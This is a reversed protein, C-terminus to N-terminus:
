EAAVTKRSARDRPAIQGRPIELDQRSYYKYQGDEVRSLFVQGLDDLCASLPIPGTVGQFTTPRHAIVDRIKARNLGAYQIAWIIMNMGDYAHAAYTDPEIGYRSRFAARFEQLKPDHRTPDWPYTCLVGEANSGAIELFEDSVCRDCCFYPQTMGMERMQNLIIAGEVADGWHVVADLNADRLREIQVTFDDGGVPYAMELIIPTKLRRAGDRIERVGFRGYRNSARIIGVRKYEMKRYLYDTLLYGMQRDDGICRAVWPINTEIFTPDTDGTNMMVLEAKLAVRIAIHSNAGDITGLIAWVHDKYALKVIENGSAGWLGNDNSIVLEFPIGRKTYGGRANAQEIALQCGRLMAIGLSEEHSKGGTAVSVTAMIPGIFGIKVTDVHEPEPIARGPGTYEMQELFHEKYPTVHRFPEVDVASHAYNHDKQLDLEPVEYPGVDIAELLSHVAEEEGTQKRENTTDRDPQGEEASASGLTALFVALGILALTYKATSM